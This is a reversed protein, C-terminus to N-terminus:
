TSEESQETVVLEEDKIAFRLTPGWHPKLLWEAEGTAHFDKITAELYTHHEYSKGAHWLLLMSIGKVILTPKNEQVVLNADMTGVMRWNLRDFFEDLPLDSAVVEIGGDTSVRVLDRELILFIGDDQWAIPFRSSLLSKMRYDKRDLIMVTHRTINEPDSQGFALALILDRKTAKSRPSLIDVNSETFFPLTAKKTVHPSNGGLDYEVVLGKQDQQAVPASKDSLLEVLILRDGHRALTLPKNDDPLDISAATRLDVLPISRVGEEDELILRCNTNEYSNMEDLLLWLEKAERLEELEEESAEPETASDIMDDFVETWPAGIPESGLKADAKKVRDCELRISGAESDHYTWRTDPEAAAAAALTGILLPLLFHRTTM